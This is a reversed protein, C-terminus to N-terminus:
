EPDGERPLPAKPVPDTTSPEGIGAACNFYSTLTQFHQKLIGDHTPQARDELRWWRGQGTILRPDAADHGDNWRLLNSDRCSTAEIHLGNTSVAIVTSSLCLVELDLKSDFALPFM